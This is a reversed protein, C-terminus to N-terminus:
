RDEDFHQQIVRDAFEKEARTWSVVPKSLDIKKSRDEAYGTAVRRQNLEGLHREVAIRILEVISINQRKAENRVQGLLTLGLRISKTIKAM